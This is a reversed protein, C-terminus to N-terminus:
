DSTRQADLASNPTLQLAIRRKTMAPDIGAVQPEAPEMDSVTSFPDGCCTRTHCSRRTHLKAISIPQRSLYGSTLILVHHVHERIFLENVGDANNRAFKVACKIDAHGTIQNGCRVVCLRLSERIQGSICFECAPKSDVVLNQAKNYM